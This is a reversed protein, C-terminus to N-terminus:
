NPVVENAHAVDKTMTAVTANSTVQSRTFPTLIGELGAMITGITVITAATSTRLGDRFLFLLGAFIVFRGINVVLVAEKDFM